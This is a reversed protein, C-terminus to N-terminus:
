TINYGKNSQSITNHENWKAYNPKPLPNERIEYHAQFHHILKIITM